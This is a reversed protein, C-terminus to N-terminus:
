ERIGIDDRTNCPYQELLTIEYDDADMVKHLLHYHKNTGKMYAHM